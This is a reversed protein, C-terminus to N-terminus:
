RRRNVPPFARDARPLSDTAYLVSSPLGSSFMEVVAHARAICRPCHQIALWRSRMEISLGCRPCNLHVAADSAAPSAEVSSEM